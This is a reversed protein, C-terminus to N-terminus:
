RGIPSYCSTVLGNDWFSLQDMAVIRSADGFELLTPRTDNVFDIAIPLADANYYKFSLGAPRHSSFGLQHLHKTVWSKTVTENFATSVFDIIVHHDVVHRRSLLFLTYGGVVAFEDSTLKCDAGKHKHPARPHSFGRRWDELTKRPPASPFSALDRPALRLLSPDDDAATMLEVCLTRYSADYSREVRKAPSASMCLKVFVRSFSIARIRAFRSACNVSCVTSPTYQKLVFFREFIFESLQQLTIRLLRQGFYNHIKEVNHLM